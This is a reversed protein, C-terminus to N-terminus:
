AFQPVKAARALWDPLSVGGVQRYRAERLQVFRGVQYDLNAANASAITKPGWLGDVVSGSAGQLFRVAWGEGQNVSADLTMAAIRNSVLESFWSNWFNTEYFASVAPGRETQPIAAIRAFDKPWYHSNIGSIAEANPDIGHVPDPVIEFRPPDFDENPLVFPFCVEFLAM